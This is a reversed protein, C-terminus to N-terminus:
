KNKDTSFWALNTIFIDINSLLLELLLKAQLFIQYHQLYGTSVKYEPPFSKLKSPCIHFNHARIFDDQYNIPIHIDVPARRINLVSYPTNTLCHIYIHSHTCM